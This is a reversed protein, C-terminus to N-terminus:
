CTHEAKGVNISGIILGYLTEITNPEAKNPFISCYHFLKGNIKIKSPHSLFLKMVNYVVFRKNKLDLM